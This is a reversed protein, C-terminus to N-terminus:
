YYSASREIVALWSKLWNGPPRAPGSPGFWCDYQVAGSPVLVASLGHGGPLTDASPPASHLDFGALVVESTGDVVRKFAFTRPVKLILSSTCAYASRHTLRLSVTCFSPGAASELM